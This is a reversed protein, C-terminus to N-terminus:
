IVRIGMRPLRLGDQDLSHDISNCTTCLSLSLSLLVVVIGRISFYNSYHPSVELSLSLFFLRAESFCGEGSLFVLSLVRFCPLGRVGPLAHGQLRPFQHASHSFAKTSPPAVVVHMCAHTGANGM